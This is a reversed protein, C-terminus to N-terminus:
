ASKTYRLIIIIYRGAGDVNTHYTINTSDISQIFTHYTASGNIGVAQGAGTYNSVNQEIVKDLGVIGHAINVNQAGGSLPLASWFTKEYLTSGDIWKGIAREATSYVVDAVDSADTIFYIKGNNKEATSLADYQAQTLEVKDANGGGGGAGNVWKNATGDYVLADGDSPSSLQVDNLGALTSSGGSGGGMEDTVLCRTWHAPTWAEATVIATSCKYLAGDYVVYDDVAYTSTADYVEAINKGAADEIDADADSFGAAIRSELNDMTQKDFLSGEQTITGFDEQMTVQEESLDTKILKYRNPYEAILDDWSKSVYAM